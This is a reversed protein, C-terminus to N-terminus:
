AQMTFRCRDTDASSGAALYLQKGAKQMTDLAYSEGLLWLAAARSDWSILLM